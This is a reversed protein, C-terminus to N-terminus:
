GKKDPARSYSLSCHKELKVLLDYYHAADSNPLRWQCQYLTKDHIQQLSLRAGLNHFKKWAWSLQAHFKLHEYTYFYWSNQSKNPESLCLISNKRSIFTLIGVITPMKVNILPFFKISLQTSCAFLKKVEPGSLLPIFVHHSIRDSYFQMQLFTMLGHAMESSSQSCALM